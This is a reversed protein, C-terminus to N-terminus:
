PSELKEDAHLLRDEAANGTKEEDIYYDNDVLVDPLKSEIDDIVKDISNEDINIEIDINQKIFYSFM